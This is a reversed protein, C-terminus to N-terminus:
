RRVMGQLRGVLALLVGALVFVLVVASYVQAM